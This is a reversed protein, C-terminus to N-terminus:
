TTPVSYQTSKAYHRANEASRRAADSEPHVRREHEAALAYAEGATNALDAFSPCAHCAVLLVGSDKRGRDLYTLKSKM